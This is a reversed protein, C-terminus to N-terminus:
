TTYKAGLVSWPNMSAIEWATCAVGVGITTEILQPPDSSEHDACLLVAISVAIESAATSPVVTQTAAPSLPLLSSGFLWVPTCQSKGADLGYASAQPPVLSTPSTLVYVIVESTTHFSSAFLSPAPPPPTLSTNM